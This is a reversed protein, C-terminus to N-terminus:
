DRLQRVILQLQMAPDAWDVYVCNNLSELITRVRNLYNIEDHKHSLFVSYRHNTESFVRRQLITENLNRVNPTLERLKSDTIIM